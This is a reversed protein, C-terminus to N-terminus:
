KESCEYKLIPGDYKRSYELYTMTLEQHDARFDRKKGPLMGAYANNVSIDALLLNSSSQGGYSLTFANNCLLQAKNKAPVFPSKEAQYPALSLQQINEEIKAKAKEVQEKNENKIATQLEIVPSIYQGITERAEKQFSNVITEFSVNVPTNVQIPNSVAQQNVVPQQTTPSIPEICKLLGYFEVCAGKQYQQYTILALGTFSISLLWAPVRQIFTVLSSHSNEIALIEKRFRRM